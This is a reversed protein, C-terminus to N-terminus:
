RKRRQKRERDAIRRVLAVAERHAMRAHDWAKVAEAQSYGGRRREAAAAAHGETELLQAIIDLLTREDRSM